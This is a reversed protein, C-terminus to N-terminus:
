ANRYIEKELRYYARDGTTLYYDWVDNGLERAVGEILETMALTEPVIKVYNKRNLWAMFNHTRLRSVAEKVLQQRPTM